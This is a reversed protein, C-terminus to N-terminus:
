LEARDFLEILVDEGASLMRCQALPGCTPGDRVQQGRPPYWSHSVRDPYRARASGRFLL